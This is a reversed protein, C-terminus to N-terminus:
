VKEPVFFPKRYGRRLLSSADKDSAFQEVQGDFKVERRVRYSINALHCLATSRHGEEIDCNLLKSDRARVANIFNGFHGGDGTGALGRRHAPQPHHADRM